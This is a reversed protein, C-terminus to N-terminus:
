LVSNQFFQIRVMGVFLFDKLFIHRDGLVRIPVAVTTRIGQNLYM